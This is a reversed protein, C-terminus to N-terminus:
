EPTFETNARYTKGEYTISVNLQVRYGISAGGISRECVATGTADTVGDCTETTSKYNWVVRMTAGVAPQDACILKGYVYVHQRQAPTEDNVWATIVCSVQPASTATPQPMTPKPTFTLTPRPTQTPKPTQTLTPTPSPGPTDTPPFTSTKTPKPTITPSPTPTSIPKSTSTATPLLTSTSTPTPSLTYTPLVGVARLTADTFLWGSCCGCVILCAFIPLLIVPIVLSKNGELPIRLKGSQLKPRGAIKM